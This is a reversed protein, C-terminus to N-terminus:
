QVRPHLETWGTAREYAHAAQFLTKENWPRTALQLGVPLGSRSFGCSRSLLVVLWTSSSAMAKTTTDYPNLGSRDSLLPPFAGVTPLLVFDGGTLEDGGQKRIRARARLADVDEPGGILLGAEVFLRTSHDYRASNGKFHELHIA